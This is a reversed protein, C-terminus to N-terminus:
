WRHRSTVSIILLAIMAIFFFVAISGIIINRTRRKRAAAAIEAEAALWEVRSAEPTQNGALLRDLGNIIGLLLRQHMAMKRPSEAATSIGFGVNFGRQGGWVYSATISAAITIRGRDYQIILRQPLESVSKARAPNQKGRRMDLTTWQSQALAFGATSDGVFGGENLFRAALALAAAPEM